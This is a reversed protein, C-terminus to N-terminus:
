DDCRTGFAGSNVISNANSLEEQTNVGLVLEHESAEYYSVKEGAASCIEVIKTLYLEKSPNLEDRVLCKDIYKELIGPAFAMIGSNCLTIKKEVDTAFKAEVIKQFNGQSDLVIRGYQNPKGYEFALTVVKSATKELHEFLGSIIKHTILPNDGYIVGINEKKNFLGKAVAVAHATGLQESQNIIRCRDKFMHLYSVLHDSYVLVLDKTVYSCNQVVRELMPVGGVEHMVKPLESNM